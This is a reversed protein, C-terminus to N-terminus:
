QLQPTLRPSFRPLNLWSELSHRIAPDDSYLLEFALDFLAMHVKCHDTALRPTNIHGYRSLDDIRDIGCFAQYTCHQCDPDDFNWAGLNLLNTKEVDLGDKLSGISLDIQGVRTMMRAEDSPYFVGNYDIVLYDQALLNPNRLDVHGNHGGQLIRRLLFSLYYEEIPKEAHYNFKILAQIFRRYYGIWVDTNDFDFRKRAFGQYNVRRLFISGIGLGDFTSILDEPEPPSLPDITPLASVKSAGFERLARELNSRFQNTPTGAGTRQKAHVEFTGDLSTSVFTDQAALFAWAETSVNQLNTCVVFESRTFKSRCFTRVADLLDLRLLPEGGQFEIKISTSELSGLWSLAASLTTDDWDFGRATQKVRSVQCYSCDLDCRLTPVLIVYNIKEPANFRKAWRSAMGIFDLDGPAEFTHGNLKLFALDLDNLNGSVYRDLFDHNARFFAGAEDSFLLNNGPSDRFRLPWVKM